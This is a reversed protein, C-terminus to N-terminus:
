PTRDISTGVNYRIGLELAASFPRNNYLLFGKSSPHASGQVFVSFPNLRWQAGVMVMPSISVKDDQVVQNAFTRQDETGFPGEPEAESVQSLTFGIGVYPHFRLHQGPFGMLAADLRRLNHLKINRPGSDTPATPDRLTATNANLFAQGASVYLGGNSRTILWDVGAMPAAKYNQGSDAFTMGGAKVGWFWSDQFGRGAQAAAITPLAVVVAAAITLARITRM